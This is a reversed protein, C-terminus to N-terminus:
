SPPASELNSSHYSMYFMSKRYATRRGEWGNALPGVYIFLLRLVESYLLCLRGGSCSRPGRFLDFTAFDNVSRALRLLLTHLSKLPMDFAMYKKLLIDDRIM